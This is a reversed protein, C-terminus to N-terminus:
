AANRQLYENLDDMMHIYNEKQDQIYNDTRKSYEVIWKDLDIDNRFAYAIIAVMSPENQWELLKSKKNIQYDNLMDYYFDVDESTINPDVNEKVFEQVDIESDSNINEPKIEDVGFYDTMLKTLLDMKGMVINKDKTSREDLDDFSVDNIKKSHLERNLEEMFRIFENTPKNLRKFRSYLGFYLFSNKANFMNFVEDNGYETLEDVMDEFGGFMEETANDKIFECMKEQDKTWNDLFNINMVSEVIVREFTGNRAASNLYGGYDRFFPMAAIDKIMEAFRKGIKTIGKQSVNMPRGSNYRAIHYAIEEDSCNLYKVIKFDYELFKDQLEEPLQSFKKDRIDFERKESKPFGKEDLVPKGNDDRIIAQYHIVGRTVKKSVRFEDHRFAHVNSCRQKGDIDWVISLGNVVQEALVIEPIPNGQLIDSVLNGKMKSDWQESPRQLPHNFLITRNDIKKNIAAVSLKEDKNTELTSCILHDMKVVEGTTGNRLVIRKEFSKMDSFARNFRKDSINLKSKIEPPKAGNMILEAIKTQLPTLRKLYTTVNEGFAMGIKGSIKNELNFSSPLVDGLTLDENGSIPADLSLTQHFIKETTGDDKEIVEVDSRKFRNRDTIMTQIKRKLRSYLFGDFTGTGNFDNAALTFVENALSYFDDYDKQSLGGFKKIISDVIKHLKNEDYYESSIKDMKAKDLVM